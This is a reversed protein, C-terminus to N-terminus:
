GSATSRSFRSTSNEGKVEYPKMADMTEYSCIINSVLKEVEGESVINENHTAPSHLYITDNMDLIRGVLKSGGINRFPGPHFSSSVIKARGISLCRVWGKEGYRNQGTGERHPRPRRHAVPHPIIELLDKINFGLDRDLFKIYLYGLFVGVAAIFVYTFTLIYFDFRSPADFSYRYNFPYIMLIMILSVAYVRDENGESSFYLVITLFSSILAPTLSILYPTGFHFAVFDFIEISILILLTLFFTRRGNFALKITRGLALILM